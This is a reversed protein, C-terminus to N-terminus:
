TVNDRSSGRLTLSYVEDDIYKFTGLGDDTTAYIGDALIITDHEGNGSADSLAARLGETDSVNFTQAFLTLSTAISLLILSKKM